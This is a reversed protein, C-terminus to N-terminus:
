VQGSTASLPPAQVFRPRGRWAPPAPAIVPAAAGSASPALMLEVAGAAKRRATTPLLGTGFALGIYELGSRAVVERAWARLEQHRDYYRPGRDSLLRGVDFGRKELMDERPESDGLM